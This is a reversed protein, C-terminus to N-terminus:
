QDGGLCEPCKDSGTAAPVHLQFCGPSSCPEFTYVPHFSTAPPNSPTIARKRIRRKQHLNQDSM